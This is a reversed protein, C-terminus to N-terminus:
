HKYIVFLIERLIWWFVSQDSEWDRYDQKVNKDM